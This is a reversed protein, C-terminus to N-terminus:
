KSCEAESRQEAEKAFLENWYNELRKWVGETGERRLHNFMEIANLGSGDYFCPGKLLHCDNRSDQGEYIPKPSHFGLDAPQPAAIMTFPYVEIVLKVKPNHKYEEEIEPTYWGTYTIFQVWGDDNGLYMRLECSHIGYNKGLVDSRKDWAPSIEIKQTLM